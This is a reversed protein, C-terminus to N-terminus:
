FERPEWSRGPYGAVLASAARPAAPPHQIPTEPTEGGRLRDRDTVPQGPWSVSTRLETRVSGSVGSVSSGSSPSRGPVYPHLRPSKFGSGRGQLTLRSQGGVDTSTRQSLRREQDIGHEDVQM